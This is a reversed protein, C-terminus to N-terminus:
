NVAPMYFSQSVTAVSLSLGSKNVVEKPKFFFTGMGGGYVGTSCAEASAEASAVAISEEFAEANAASIAAACDNTAAAFASAIARAVARAVARVPCVISFFLGSHSLSIM